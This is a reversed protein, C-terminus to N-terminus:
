RVNNISAKATDHHTKESCEPEELLSGLVVNPSPDDDGEQGYTYDYVVTNELETDHIVVRTAM